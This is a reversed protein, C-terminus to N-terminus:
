REAEVREGTGAFRTHHSRYPITTAFQHRLDAPGRSSDFSVFSQITARSSPSRQGLTGFCVADCRGALNELEATWGLFDWSEDQHFQYTPIGQHDLQVDVTGTPHKPDTSVYSVDIRSRKLSDFARRGLDDDGVASVIYTKGGLAAAHHAFNGPAGGFRAESPFVDWLLEGLAVIIPQVHNM